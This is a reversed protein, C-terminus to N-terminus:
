WMREEFHRGPAGDGLPSSTCVDATRQEDIALDHSQGRESKCVVVRCPRAVVDVQEFFRVPDALIQVFLIEWDRLRARQRDHAGTREDQSEGTKPPVNRCSADRGPTSIVQGSFRKASRTWNNPM